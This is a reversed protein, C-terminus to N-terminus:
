IGLAIVKDSRQYPFYELHDLLNVVICQPTIEGEGAEVQCHRGCCLQVQDDQLGPARHVGADDSDLLARVRDLGFIAGMGAASLATM